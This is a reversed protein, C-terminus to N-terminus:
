EKGTDIQETASVLVSTGHGRMLAVRSNPCPPHEYDHSGKGKIRNYTTCTPSTRMVTNKASTVIGTPTDSALRCADITHEHQHHADHVHLHSHEM